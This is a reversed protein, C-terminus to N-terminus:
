PLDWFFARYRREPWAFAKIVISGRWDSWHLPAKHWRTCINLIVGSVRGAFCPFSAVAKVWQHCKHRLEGLLQPLGPWHWEWPSSPVTVPCGGKPQHQEPANYAQLFIRFDECWSPSNAKWRSAMFSVSSKSDSHIWCRGLHISGCFSCPCM